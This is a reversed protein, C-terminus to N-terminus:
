ARSRSVQSPPRSWSRAARPSRRTVASARWCGNFDRAVGSITSRLQRDAYSGPITLVSFFRPDQVIVQGTVVLSRESEALVNELVASARDLDDHLAQNVQRTTNRDVVWLAAFALTVLPLVTIFMIKWRLGIRM